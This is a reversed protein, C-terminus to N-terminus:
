SLLQFCSKRWFAFRTIRQSMGGVAEHWGQQFKCFSCGCLFDCGPYGSVSVISQAGAVLPLIRSAPAPSDCCAVQVVENVGRPVRYFGYCPLGHELFYFFMFMPSGKFLLNNKSSQIQFCWFNFFLVKKLELLVGQSPGWSSELFCSFPLAPDM